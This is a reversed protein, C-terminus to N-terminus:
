AAARFVSGLDREAVLDLFRSAFQPGKGKDEHKFFVFADQWPQRDIREAWQILGADSYDLRRLRLYGWDATSVLPVELKNEAEAVCLAAHHDRLVRFVEDDFWSQHRFEFAARCDRPLLALFERLRNTDREFDPPTQFLLPGLRNKLAGAVKLLYSLSDAANKLRQFHTIRQSAKLAFTFEESVEAAWRELVSPRPMQYFTNNIEVTPLREAYWALMGEPKMDAPYFAGKWEKFSYGSAGALLKKSNPM